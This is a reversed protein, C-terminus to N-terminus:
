RIVQSRKIEERVATHYYELCYQGLQRQVLIQQM